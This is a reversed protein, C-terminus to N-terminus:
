MTISSENMYIENLFESLILIHLSIYFLNFPFDMNETQLQSRHSNLFINGAMGLTVQWRVAVIGIQWNARANKARKRVQPNRCAKIGHNADM